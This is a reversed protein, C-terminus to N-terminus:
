VIYESFFIISDRKDKRMIGLKDVLKPGVHNEFAQRISACREM